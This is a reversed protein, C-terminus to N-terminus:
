VTSAFLCIWYQVTSKKWGQHHGPGQVDSSPLIDWTRLFFPVRALGDHKAQQRYVQACSGGAGSLCCAHFPAFCGDLISSSHDSNGIVVEPIWLAVLAPAPRPRISTGLLIEGRAGEEGPGSSILPRLVHLPKHIWFIALALFFCMTLNLM